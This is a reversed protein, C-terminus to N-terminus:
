KPLIVPTVDIRGSKTRCYIDLINLGQPLASFLARCDIDLRFPDKQPQLRYGEGGGRPRAVIDALPEPSYIELLIDKPVGRDRRVEYWFVNLEAKDGDGEGESETSAGSLKQTMSFIRGLTFPDPELTMLEEFAKQFDFDVKGKGGAEDTKIDFFAFWSDVRGDVSLEGDRALGSFGNVIREGMGDMMAKLLSTRAESKVPPFLADIISFNGRSWADKRGGRLDKLIKIDDRASEGTYSERLKYLEELMCLALNRRSYDMHDDTKFEALTLIADDFRSAKLAVVGKWFVHEADKNIRSFQYYITQIERWAQAVRDMSILVEVRLYAIELLGINNGGLRFSAEFDPAVAEIRALHRLATSFLEEREGPELTDPQAFRAMNLCTRAMLYSTDLDMSDSKLIHWCWRYADKLPAYYKEHDFSKGREKVFDIEAQLNKVLALYRRVGNKITPDDVKAFLKKFERLFKTLERTDTSVGPKDFDVKLRFFDQKPTTNLIKAGQGGGGICGGLCLAMVILIM